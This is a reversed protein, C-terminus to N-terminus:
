NKGEPAELKSRFQCSTLIGAIEFAHKCNLRESPTMMKKTKTNFLYYEAQKNRWLNKMHYQQRQSLPKGDMDEYSEVQLRLQELEDLEMEPISVRKYTVTSGDRMTIDHTDKEAFKSWLEVAQNRIRNVVSKEENKDAQKITGETLSIEDETWDKRGLQKLYVERDEPPLLDPDISAKEQETL